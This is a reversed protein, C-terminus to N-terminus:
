LSYYVHYSVLSMSRCLSKRFFLLTDNEKIFSPFKTGDSADKVNGCPMEWQPIKPARNYTALLGTKKIDTVGTYITAVDGEFDYM